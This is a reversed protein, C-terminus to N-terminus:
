VRRYFPDVRLQVFVTHDRFPEVLRPERATAEHMRGLIFGAREAVAPDARGALLEEKWVRSGAPAHTMAFVYNPRDAFLVEPVTPEPLLPHLAQMVEQERYVRNLDSFWADRTRLQPRSQKLVFTREPTEARLVANSVGWGLSEVRAPGPGVWGRARLYDLANDPTLEFM